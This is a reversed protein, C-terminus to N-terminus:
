PECSCLASRACPPAPAPVCAGGSAGQGACWAACDFTDPHGTDDAHSHLENAGPNSEVLRGDPLCAEGFSRGDETRIREGRKYENFTKVREQADYIAEFYSHLQYVEEYNKEAALDCVLGVSVFDDSYYSVEPKIREPRADAPGARMLWVSGALLLLTALVRM